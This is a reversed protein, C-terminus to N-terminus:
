VSFRDSFQFKIERRKLNKGKKKTQFVILIRKLYSVISYDYLAGTYVIIKRNIFINKIKTFFKECTTFFM